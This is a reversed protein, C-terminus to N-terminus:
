SLYDIVADGLGRFGEQSVKRGALENAFHLKDIMSWGRRYILGFLM